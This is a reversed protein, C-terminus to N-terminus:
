EDVPEDELVVFRLRPVIGGPVPYNKVYPKVLIHFRDFFLPFWPVDDLILQEAQQYLQIRREADQEILAERLLTDVSPNEYGNYNNAGESDFHLNLLNEEDPYDMIWALLYMQYIGDEINRFFEGALSQEVTVEM